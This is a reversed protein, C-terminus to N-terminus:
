EHSPGLWGATLWVSGDFGLAGTGSGPPAGGPWFPGVVPAPVSVAAATCARFGAPALAACDPVAVPEPAECAVLVPELVVPLELVLVVLVM